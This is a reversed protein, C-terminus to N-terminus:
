LTARYRREEGTFVSSDFMKGLDVYASISVTININEVTHLGTVEVLM